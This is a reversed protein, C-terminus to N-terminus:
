REARDLALEGLIEELRAVPARHPATESRELPTNDLGESRSGCSPRRCPSSKPGSAAPRTRGCRSGPGDRPRNGGAALRVYESLRNKLIKLGVARM